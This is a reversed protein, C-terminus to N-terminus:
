RARRILEGVNELLTVTPVGEVGSTHVLIRNPDPGVDYGRSARLTVLYGLAQADFLRVPRGPKGTRSDVAAVCLDRHSNPDDGVTPGCAFFLEDGSRSWRPHRGTDESVPWIEGPEPFTTVNIQRQGTAISMFALFRGNPSVAPESGDLLRRSSMESGITVTWIGGKGFLLQRADPSWTPRDAGPGVPVPTPDSGSVSTIALGDRTVYAIRDDRPSWAPSGARGTDPISLRRVTAEGHIWIGNTGARVGAAAM